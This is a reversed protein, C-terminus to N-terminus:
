DSFAPKMYKWEVLDGDELVYEGAGVEAPKENVFYIWSNEQTNEVGGISDVLVGFDYETTELDIKEDETVDELFELVSGGEASEREVMVQNEESYEIELIEVKNEIVEEVEVEVPQKWMGLRYVVGGFVLVGLVLPIYKFKKM